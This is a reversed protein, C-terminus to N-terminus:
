DGEVQYESVSVGVINKKYFTAVKTFGDSMAVYEFALVSENDCTISINDFTFTHGLPTFICIKTRIDNNMGDKKRDLNLTM